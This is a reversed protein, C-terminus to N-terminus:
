EGPAQEVGFQRAWQKAAERLDDGVAKWDEIMARTDAETPGNSENFSDFTGGLDLTRAVGSLFSPRAFLYTSHGM